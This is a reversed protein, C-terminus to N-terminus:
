NGGDQCKFVQEYIQVLAKAIEQVSAEEPLRVEFETVTRGTFHSGLLVLGYLPHAVSRVEIGGELVVRMTGSMDGPVFKLQELKEQLAQTM